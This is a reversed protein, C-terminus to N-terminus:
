FDGWLLQAAALAALGATETRLVRPGLAVGLCGATDFMALERESWGGEPGVLLRVDGAPKPLASLRRGSDPRLVLPPAERSQGLWQALEAIPEIRPILNRGSQECAAVAVQQWHRERREARDGSLRSVSREAVIPQIASVGLEVAKQVVWDLKEASALAQVLVTRLPSEREPASWRLLAVRSARGVSLLRAEVERGSGDFLVLSAGVRLRLVKAAHHAVMDPLDYEGGQPLDPPCFFRPIM